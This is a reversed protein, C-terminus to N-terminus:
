DFKWRKSIASCKLVVYGVNSVVPNIAVTGYPETTDSGRPLSDMPDCVPLRRNLILPTWQQLIRSTPTKARPMTFWWRKNFTYQSTTIFDTIQLRNSANWLWQITFEYFLWLVHLQLLHLYIMVNYDCQETRVFNIEFMITGTQFILAPLENDMTGFNDCHNNSAYDVNHLTKYWRM